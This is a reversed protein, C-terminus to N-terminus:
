ALTLRSEQEQMVACLSVSKEEQVSASGDALQGSDCGGGSGRFEQLFVRSLNLGCRLGFGSTVCSEFNVEM